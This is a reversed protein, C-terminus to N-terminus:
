GSGVAPTSCVPPSASQFTMGSPINDTLTIPGTTLATVNDPGGNFVTVTYTVDSPIAVPDAPGSKTVSIDASSGQAWASSAWPLCAVLALLALRRFRRRM